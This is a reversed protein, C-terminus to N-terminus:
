FILAKYNPKRQALLPGDWIAADLPPLEPRVFCQLLRRVPDPDAIIEVHNLSRNLTQGLDCHQIKVQWPTGDTKTPPLTLHASEQPVISDGPGFSSAPQTIVPQGHGFLSASAPKEVQLRVLTQVTSSYFCSIENVRDLQDLKDPRTLRELLSNEPYGFPYLKEQGSEDPSYLYNTEKLPLFDRISLLRERVYYYLDPLNIGRIGRYIYNIRRYPRWTDFADALLAMSRADAIPVGIHTSDGGEYAFYAAIAGQQPAAVLILRNVAGTYNDSQIYARGVVGGMSHCLMDVQSYDVPRPSRSLTKEPSLQRIRRVEAALMPALEDAGRRWDYAFVFLSVGPVYGLRSFGTLLNDYARTVPDLRGRPTPAPPWTGLLGPVIILPRIVAPLLDPRAAPAPRIFPFRYTLQSLRVSTFPRNNM